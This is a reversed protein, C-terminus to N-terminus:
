CAICFFWDVVDKVENYGNDEAMAKTAKAAVVAAANATAMEAGNNDALPQLCAEGTRETPM